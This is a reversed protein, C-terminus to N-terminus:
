ANIRTLLAAGCDPDPIINGVFWVTGHGSNLENSRSTTFSVPVSAQDPHAAIFAELAEILQRPSHTRNKMDDDGINAPVHGQSQAVM